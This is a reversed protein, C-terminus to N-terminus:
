FGDFFYFVFNCVNYCYFVNCDIFLEDIECIFLIIFCCDVVIFGIEVKINFFNDICVRANVM